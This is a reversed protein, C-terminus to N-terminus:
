RWLSGGWGRIRAISSNRTSVIQTSTAPLTVAQGRTKRCQPCSKLECLITLEGGTESIQRESMTRCHTRGCSIRWFRLLSNFIMEPFRIQKGWCRSKWRRRLWRDCEYRM